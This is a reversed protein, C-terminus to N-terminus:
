GGLTTLAAKEDSSPPGKCVAQDWLEVPVEANDSEVAKAM